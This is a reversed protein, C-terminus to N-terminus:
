NELADSNDGGSNLFNGFFDNDDDCDVVQQSSQQQSSGSMDYKKVYTKFFKEIKREVEYLMEYAKLEIESKSLKEDNSGIMEKFTYLLLQSKMTPDLLIAFYVYDSMKAYDGWYKDYKDKMDPILHVFNVKTSWKKLHLNVDLIERILRHVLPKTSASVNETKTKFKELFDVMEKIAEFDMRDPVRQLDKEYSKEKIGFEVFAEWLKYATKLLEFTSNWRTPSDDCLFEITTDNCTANDVTMSMVNKMGWGHICAVLERGIEEGKHTDIERFNIVRKHMVWEDDIFHATVVMYNVKKCSSTWTDTTLHVATNANSFYKFLKNREDLYFKGVDRSIKHRSPLIVRGNLANTYEIFANPEKKFNLKAKKKDNKEKNDPNSKCNRWHKNMNSTGNQDTDAKLITHCYICEVSKREVGDDEIIWVPEFAVWCPATGKGNNRARERKSTIPKPVGGNRKRKKPSPKPVDEKGSGDSINNIVPPTEGIFDDEYDKM